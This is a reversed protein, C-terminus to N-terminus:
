DAQLDFIMIRGAFEGEQDNFNLDYFGKGFTGVDYPDASNYKKYNIQDDPENEWIVEFDKEIQKITDGIKNTLYSEKNHWLDEWVVLYKHKKM